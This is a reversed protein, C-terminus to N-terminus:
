EVFTGLVYAILDGIAVFVIYYISFSCPGMGLAPTAGPSNRACWHRAPCVLAAWPAGLNLGGWAGAQAPGAHILPPARSVRSLSIKNDGHHQHAPPTVAARWLVLSEANTM